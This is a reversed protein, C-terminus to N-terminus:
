VLQLCVHALLLSLQYQVLTGFIESWIDRIQDLKNQEIEALKKHLHPANVNYQNSSFEVGNKIFDLYTSM